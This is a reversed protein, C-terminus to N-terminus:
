IHCTSGYFLVQSRRSFAFYLMYGMLTGANVWLVALLRASVNIGFMSAINHDRIYVSHLLVSMSHLEEVTFDEPISLLLPEHDTDESEDDCMNIVTEPRRKHRELHFVRTDIIQKFKLFRQAVKKLRHNLYGDVSANCLSILIAGGLTWLLCAHICMHRNQDNAAISAFSHITAAGSLIAYGVMFNHYIKVATCADKILEVLQDFSQVVLDVDRYDWQDLKLDFANVHNIAGSKLLASLVWYHPINAFNLLADGTLAFGDLLQLVTNSSLRLRDLVRSLQMLLMPCMIFIMFLYTAYCFLRKRKRFKALLKQWANRYKDTCNMSSLVLNVENLYVMGTVGDANKIRKYDGWWIGVVLISFIGWILTLVCTLWAGVFMDQSVASSIESIGSCLVTFTFFVGMYKNTLGSFVMCYHLLFTSDAYKLRKEDSNLAFVSQMEDTSSTDFASKKRKGKLTSHTDIIHEQNIELIADTTRMRNIVKRSLAKLFSVDAENEKNYKVSSKKVRHQSSSRNVEQEEIGGAKSKQPIEANKSSPNVKPM